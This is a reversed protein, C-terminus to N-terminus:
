SAGILMQGNPKIKVAELRGNITPSTFTGDTAGSTTLRRLLGSGTNNFPYGAIVIKGDSQLELDKITVAPQSAFSADVM